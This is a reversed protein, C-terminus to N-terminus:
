GVASLPKVYVYQQKASVFSLQQNRQEIIMITM